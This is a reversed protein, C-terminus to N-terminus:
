EMEQINPIMSNQYQNQTNNYSSQLNKLKRITNPDTILLHKYAELSPIDISGGGMLAAVMINDISKEIFLQAINIEVIEKLQNILETYQAIEEEMEKIKGQNEIWFSLLHEIFLAYSTYGYQGAITGVYEMVWKGIEQRALALSRAIDGVDTLLVEATQGEGSKVLKQDLDDKGKGKGKGGKEKGKKPVQEQGALGPEDGREIEQETDRGQPQPKEQEVDTGVDGGSGQTEEKEPDTEIINRVQELYELPLELDRAIEELSKLEEIQQKITEYESFLARLTGKSLNTDRIIQNETHGSKFARFVSLKLEDDM